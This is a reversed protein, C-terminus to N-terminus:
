GHKIGHVLFDFETKPAYYCCANDYCHKNLSKIQLNPKEFLKAALVSLWSDIGFYGNSKKLVEIAELITLKNSLNILNENIPVIDKENNIVVGKKNYKKLISFINIWDNYNFDRQAMRKDSSFPLIVFYDDPLNLFDILALKEKLFTSNNYKIKKAKVDEFVKIISLDKCFHTLKHNHNSSKLYDEISYFCWFKSFDKWLIQHNKLNPYSPTQSISRFIQEIFQQKNTAYYITQIKSREFDSLFSEVAFIDGIGGTLFIASQNKQPFIKVPRVIKNTKIVKNNNKQTNNARKLRSEALKRLTEKKNNM